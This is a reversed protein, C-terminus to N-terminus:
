SLKIDLSIVVNMEQKETDWSNRRLLLSPSFVMCFFFRIQCFFLYRKQIEGEAGIVNGEEKVQDAQVEIARGEEKEVPCHYDLHCGVVNQQCVGMGIGERKVPKLFPSVLPLM